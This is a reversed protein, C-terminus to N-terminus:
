PAHVRGLMSHSASESRVIFRALAAGGDEAVVVKVPSTGLNEYSSKMIEVQVFM